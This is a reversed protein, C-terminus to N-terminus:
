AAAQPSPAAETGAEFHAAFRELALAGAPALRAARRVAQDGRARAEARLAARDAPGPHRLGPECSAFRGAGLRRTDGRALAGLRLATGLAHGAHTWGARGARDVGACLAAAHCALGFGRTGACLGLHRALAAASTDAPPHGQAWLDLTRGLGQVFLSRSFAAVLARRAEGALSPCARAALVPTLQGLHRALAAPDPHDAHGPTAARPAGAAPAPADSAADLLLAALHHLEVLALVDAHRTPDAGLAEMLQAALAPRLRADHRAAWQALPVLLGRALTERHLGPHRLDTLSALWAGGPVPPLHQALSREALRRAADLTLGM